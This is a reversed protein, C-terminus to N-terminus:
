GGLHWKENLADFFGDTKKLEIWQNIFNIWVQDDQPLLFAGPRRSRAKDVKVTVLEPFTQTLAAAEVNSTISVQARGALVEQYDRAPAEVSILRAHPFFSKAQADFVTGLTTAVTVEPKDISDWGDFRTANAKLTLPVTGYLVFPESFGAVKARAVSVSANQTLDYKDAVIGNVLTKWDTPVLELEVEMDKALQTAVDIDFGKYDGTVPDKFSMPNFDGTTGLRLKGSELVKQLRSGDAAIADGVFTTMLILFAGLLSKQV